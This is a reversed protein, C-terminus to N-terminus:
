NGEAARSERRQHIATFIIIHNIRIFHNDQGYYNCFIYLINPARLLAFKSGDRTCSTKKPFTRLALKPWAGALCAAKPAPMGLETMQVVILLTQEEPM